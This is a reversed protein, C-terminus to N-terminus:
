ISEVLNHVHNGGHEEWRRRVGESTNRTFCKPPAHCLPDAGPASARHAPTRRKRACHLHVRGPAARSIPARPARCPLPTPRASTERSVIPERAEARVGPAGARHVAEGHPTERSVNRNEPRRHGTGRRFPTAARRKTLLAVPRLGRRIRTPGTNSGHRIRTPRADSGHRFWPTRGRAGPAAARPVRTTSDVPQKLLISGRSTM